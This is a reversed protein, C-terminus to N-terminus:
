KRKQMTASGLAVRQLALRAHLRIVDSENTDECMRTLAPVFRSSEAGLEAVASIARCRRVYAPTYDYEYRLYRHWRNFVRFLEFDWRRDRAQLEVDLVPFASWAMIHIAHGARAVCRQQESSFPLLNNGAADMALPFDKLWAGLKRGEYSPESPRWLLFVFCGVAFLAAAVFLRRSNSTPLHFPM